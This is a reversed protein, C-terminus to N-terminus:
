GNGAPLFLMQASAPLIKCLKQSITSAADCFIHSLAGMVLSPAVM